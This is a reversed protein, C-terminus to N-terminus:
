SVGNGAQHSGCGEATRASGARGSLKAAVMGAAKLESSEPFPPLSSSNRLSSLSAARAARNVWFSGPFRYLSTHGDLELARETLLLLLKINFSQYLQLLGPDFLPFTEFLLSEDFDPLGLQSIRHVHSPRALAHARIILPLESHV